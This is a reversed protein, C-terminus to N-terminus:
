ISGIGERQEALGHSPRALSRAGREAPLVALGDLPDSRAALCDLGLDAVTLRGLLAMTRLVEQELIALARMVGAEGAAALGYLTARGVMVADAGLALAKVIDTGRRFGGDVLITFDDGVRRRVEPLTAVGSVMGDLQRGGHNSLVVGDAGADAARAADDATVLGKIILRRPWIRRLLAVDSWDFALDMQERTWSATRKYTREAPPIKDAVNAFTPLGRALVNAMWHPRRLVDLKNALTPDMDRGYNRRDWERNGFAAADVTVVLAESGAADARAVLEEMFARARFVYLQMWHRVGPLAAVDELRANSVTSQTFPIGFAAAARALCQDGEHWYLGNSGTPAIVVPLRLPRGFLKTSADVGAANILTNPRFLIRSFIERNERLTLEEEAGGEIYETVFNPLRRHMRARLDSIAVARELNAGMYFRRRM